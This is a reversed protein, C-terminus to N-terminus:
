QVHYSFQFLTTSSYQFSVIPYLGVRVAIGSAVAFFALPMAVLCLPLTHPHAFRRVQTAWPSGTM